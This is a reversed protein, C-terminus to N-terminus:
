NGKDKGFVQPLKPLLITLASTDLTIPPSDGLMTNDIVVNLVNSDEVLWILSHVFGSSAIIEAEHM